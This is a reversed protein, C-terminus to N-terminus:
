RSMKYGRSEGKKKRNCIIRFAASGTVKKQNNLTLPVEVNKKARTADFNHPVPDKRINHFKM